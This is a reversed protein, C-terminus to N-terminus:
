GRGNDSVEENMGRRELYTKLFCEALRQIQPNPHRVAWSGTGADYRLSGCEAPLYSRECVYCIVIQQERDQATSFRVADATRDAPLWACGRAYGLNCQTRLAEDSPVVGAHSQACCQGRFGAGLPLRRPHTWGANDFRELPVFYPCAM